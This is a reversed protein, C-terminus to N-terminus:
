ATLRVTGGDASISFLISSSSASPDGGAAGFPRQGLQGGEASAEDDLSGDLLLEVSPKAPGAVLALGLCRGALAIFSGRKPPCRAPQSRLVPQREKPFPYSLSRGRRGSVGVTTSAADQRAVRSRPRCGLRQAGRQPGRGGGRAAAPPHKPARIPGIAGIPASAAGQSGTQPGRPSRGPHDTADERGLEEFEAPPRYDLASHLRARNYEAEIWRFIQGRAQERTAYREHATLEKEMTAFFSEATANDLASGRDGMSLRIGTERACVGFAVSTYQAFEIPRRLARDLPTATLLRLRPDSRASRGAIRVVLLPCRLGRRTLDRGLALWDREAERMGLQVALLIREGTEAVGWACLVGEKAGSPRVPLYIADLFLAVPWIQSLDRAM